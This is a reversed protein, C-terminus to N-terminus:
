KAPDAAQTIATEAPPPAEAEFDSKGFFGRCILFLMTAILLCLIWLLWPKPRKKKESIQEQRQWDLMGFMLALFGSADQASMGNETLTQEMSTYEDDTLQSCGAALQKQLLPLGDAAIGKDILICDQKLAPSYHETLKQLLFVPDSLLKEPGHAQKLMQLLQPMSNVSDTSSRSAPEDTGLMAQFLRLTHAAQTPNMGVDTLKQCLAADSSAQADQQALANGLGCELAAEILQCDREMAPTYQHSLESLLLGPETLLHKAGKKRAINKLVTETAQYPYHPM